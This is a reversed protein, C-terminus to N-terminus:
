TVGHGADDGPTSAPAAAQAQAPQILTATPQVAVPGHAGHRALRILLFIALVLMLLSAAAFAVQAPQLPGDIILSPANSNTAAAAVTIPVAPTRVFTSADEQSVAYIEHHGPKLPNELVYTWKGQSDTQARLVMPDSFVYVFLNTNPTSTGSVLIATIKTGGTGTITENAVSNINVVDSATPVQTIVTPQIPALSAPIKNSGSFCDDATLRQSLQPAQTGAAIPVYASGLAKQLCALTSIALYPDSNTPATPHFITPVSSLQTAQVPSIQYSQGNYTYSTPPPSSAPSPSPSGSAAPQPSGSPPSTSVITPGVTVNASATATLGAMNVQVGINYTGPKTTTTLNVGPQSTTSLTGANTHWSFTAGNPPTIATVTQGNYLNGDVAFGAQSGAPGSWNAPNIGVTLHPAGAPSPSPAPSPNSTVPNAVNAQVPASTCISTTNTGYQAMVAFQYAGNPTQSTTTDYPLTWTGYTTTRQGQGLPYQNPATEEFTVSTPLSGSGTTATFNYTGSINAGASPATLTIPGGTGCSALITPVRFGTIAISGLIVAVILLSAAYHHARVSAM